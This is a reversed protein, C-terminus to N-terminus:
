SGASGLVHILVNFWPNVEGARQAAIWYPVLAVLGLM